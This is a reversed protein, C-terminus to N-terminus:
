AAQWLVGTGNGRFVILRNNLRRNINKITDRLLQERDTGAVKPFPNRIWQKWKQKEFADLIVEMNPALRSFRKVVQGKFLLTRNWRDWRPRLGRPPRPAAKAIPPVRRRRRKARATSKKHM